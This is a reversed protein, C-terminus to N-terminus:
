KSSNYLDFVEQAYKENTYTVIDLIEKQNDIIEKVTLSNHKITKIIDQLLVDSQLKTVRKTTENGYQLVFNTDLGIEEIKAKFIEKADKFIEYYKIVELLYKVEGFQKFYNLKVLKDLVTKNIKTGKLCDLFNIFNNYSKQGLEFLSESVQEGFGKISSLNPYIVKNVDDVTVRRNDKGFEYDGLKFGFYTIAEKVLADIKDKKNKDQYHNIAVEYFKATHHAKFWAQYASDGGMSLAHPSNFAYRASDEIVNWIKEFNDLNGIINMWNEKLTKQLDGLKKGKLKKKSISKIIGYSESMPVGLFSLVKM